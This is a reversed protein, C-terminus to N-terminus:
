PNLNQPHLFSGNKKACGLPVLDRLDRLGGKSLAIPVHIIM